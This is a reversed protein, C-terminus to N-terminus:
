SYNSGKWVGRFGEREEKLFCGFLTIQCVRWEEVKSGEVGGGDLCAIVYM